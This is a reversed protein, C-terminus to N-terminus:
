RAAKPKEPPPPEEYPGRPKLFDWEPPVDPGSKKAGRLPRPRPAEEELPRPRPAEEELPRPRPAEEAPPDAPAPPVPPRRDVYPVRAAVVALERALLERTRPHTPSGFHWVNDYHLNEANDFTTGNWICGTALINVVHIVHEPRDRPTNELTNGGCYVLLDVVIPEDKVSNALERAMNAGFSFGILVFRADPDEEHVHRLDKKFQWLHYMQGYHTKIFGLQQIYETLGALNALDLPDAGHLLFVHVHNRCPAPVSECTRKQEAPPLDLSHVFSLCGPGAGLGAAALLLGGWRCARPQRPPVGVRPGSRCGQRSM